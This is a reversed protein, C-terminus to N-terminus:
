ALVEVDGQNPITVRWGADEVLRRALAEAPAPEGHAVFARRPSEGATLWSFLQDRDAHASLGDLRFVEALVPIETGHIRVEKAGGALAAGRTGAAQYGVFLLTNDPNPALRKIHHLVRGGTAMGSASLIVIPDKRGNLTKSEDQTRLYRATACMARCESEELRHESQHRCHIGTTDIAMPSDLFVPLDPIRRAAKLRAIMHLVIQARGVAFCPIVTSGGRQATASLIAALSESADGPGHSRDGYTSECVVYDAGPRNEPPRMLPDDPRGLDGTILLSRGEGQMLVSAAGLIHGARRLTFSLGDGLDMPEHFPVPRLLDLTWEADRRTYLPRAPAHSSFGHRNAFRAAEEQLHGCDPLLLEALDATGQSCFIPGRYGSEFLVPLLGSHDIHAHTLVAADLTSVDFPLASWNLSRLHKPGQFLGCDVLVRRQAAEVLFKSGTVTGTGGLFALTWSSTSAGHM